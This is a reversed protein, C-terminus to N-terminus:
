QRIKEPVVRILKESLRHEGQIQAGMALYDMLNELKHVTWREGALILPIGPPYPVVMAASIRGQAKTYSIWEGGENELEDFTAEPASLVDQPQVKVDIAERPMDKLKALAGKVRSRTEAFSFGHGQKLLPLILLVQYPDALEAHIGEQEFQEKLQYGSHYPVRLMLKLPDDSEYVELNPLSKLSEVFQKRKEGFSRKDPQSYNQIYARADDLSAMIVYSPSSSQLIRLYKKIKEAFIRQGQIHLFSGMTMAPLTKHASHVVADAGMALSSLPYPEGLQFHSGHAEDVLVPIGHEHCLEIIGKMEGSAMGYYNPYTLIVAKTKPYKRIAEEMVALKVGGATLSAEDWEPSVFVPRVKVLELAHFISKHSNRQVIVQDGERCAAYVMALNGVTSGNVLFFSHGAGYTETLLRQAEAIAGEPYHLDDLGSLETLDYSLAQKFDDPLGSLLGNKHGPVHFSIPRKRQFENLAEVLPKRQTM